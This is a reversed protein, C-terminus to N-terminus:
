VNLPKYIEETQTILEIDEPVIVMLAHTVDLAEGRCWGRLEDVLEPYASRSVMM